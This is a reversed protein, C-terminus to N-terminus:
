IHGSLKGHLNKLGLAFLCLQFMKGHHMSFVGM